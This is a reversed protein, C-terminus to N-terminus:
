RYTPLLSPLVPVPFFPSSPHHIAARPPSSPSQFPARVARHLPFFLHLDSYSHADLPLSSVPIVFSPFPSSLMSLHLHLQIVSPNVRAFVPVPLLHSALAPPLAHRTLSSTRAPQPEQEHRPAQARARARCLGRGQVRARCPAQAPARQAHSSRRPASDHRKRVHLSPLPILDPELSSMDTGAAAARASMNAIHVAGMLKLVKRKIKGIQLAIAVFFRSSHLGSLHPSSLSPSIVAPLPSFPLPSASLSPPAIHLCSPLLALAAHCLSPPDSSLSTYIASAPFPPPRPRRIPRPSSELGYRAIPSSPRTSPSSAIPRLPHTLYSVPLPPPVFGHLVPRPPPIRHSAACTPHFSALFRHSSVSAALPLPVVGLHASCRSGRRLLTSTDLWLATPPPSFLFRLFVCWCGARLLDFDDTKRARRRRACRAWTGISTADFNCAANVLLDIQKKLAAVGLEEAEQWRELKNYTAALHGMTRLTDTHNDGLINRQRELAAIGLEEAEKLKGLTQYTVALNAMARLTDTHNDGLINRRRELAAIGLEEAEKLKGLTQYTGALNAMARLTEPHNDGLLNRRKELVEVGLEEAEKLKGLTQYTVALNAMARLTDTHNDGLINRRRELAAIGLEEAEKLKGLTQYTVALNAMARLTDTHNDGLINRRRELAAIGLEEAEKLKGLSWYTAALNGMVVLTNPHNDGLINRQKDLVVVELEEAEKYKGLKNYTLALNGMADLTAPHNDGLINRRQKLIVVALQEAEKFKGLNRYIWALWFM